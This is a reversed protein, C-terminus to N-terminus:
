PSAASPLLTIEVRRNRARGEPTANDAVPEADARSEARLREAPLRGALLSTVGQARASALHWNSPFRLSRIPQNDTHGLVHVQGPVAELAAAIRGFLARTSGRPEASGPDFLSDGKLTIVSRDALDTVQLAGAEIDSKLLQALRPPPPPAPVPPEAAATPAVLLSAAQVSPAKADLALLATFTPDTQVNVALRLAFFVLLLGLATASAIVWLPVRTTALPGGTALGQWHPSLSRDVPPSQERLLKALRERLAALQERGDNMVKYRGELGLALAVWILSLLQRHEAPSQALKGLLQFVKEGGWGENHFQVLLSNANWLGGGGWPTSAAAEDVFTCLVYRAAVIQDNPLGLQHATAEFQLMAEGMARRLGQPSPHRAMQRLRAAAQLLPSAAQVLPNLSALSALSPATAPPPADLSHAAEASPRPGDGWATAPPAASGAGATAGAMRAARGASPKIVTRDAEFASFPDQPTEDSM